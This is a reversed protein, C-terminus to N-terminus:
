RNDEYVFSDDPVEGVPGWGYGLAKMCDNMRDRIATKDVSKGTATQYKAVDDECKFKDNQFNLEGKQDHHYWVYRTCGGLGILSCLIILGTLVGKASIGNGYYRM